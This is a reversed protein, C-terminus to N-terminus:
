LAAEAAHDVSGDGRRALETAADMGRRGFSVLIGGAIVLIAISMMWVAAPNLHYLHGSFVAAVGGALSILTNNLAYVGARSGPETVEALTADMFPKFISFGVAYIAVAVAALTFSGPPIFIFLVLAAVQLGLGVLMNAFRHARSFLPVIVVLVLLMVAAHLGGLLSIAPKALGVAETLYPAFYLSSFSGIPLFLMYLIVVAMMKVAGPNRRLAALAGRYPALPSVGQGRGRSERHRRLIEQGVRTETYFHNRLLVQTGISVVAFVLLVREAAVIGLYRVLLGALPTLIGTAVTVINLLNYAALRQEGDADEVVMLNWSVTVIRWFSNVAMGLAFLWFGGALAYISYAIPWAIFDFILTTKKRGLRDTVMGGLFSTVAGTLFGLSILYGIEADTVGLSKMYLSLYFNCLVFPVGWLPEFLVSIRTNGTLTQLSTLINSTRLRNM